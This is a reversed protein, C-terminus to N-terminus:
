KKILDRVAVLDPLIAVTHEKEYATPLIIDPVMVVPIKANNAAKVGNLSDEIILTENKAPCGAKEWAKEFIEPAPKAHTVDDASVIDAFRGSNSIKKSIAQLSSM